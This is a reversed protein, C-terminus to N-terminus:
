EVLSFTRDVIQKMTELLPTYARLSQESHRQQFGPEIATHEPDNDAVNM